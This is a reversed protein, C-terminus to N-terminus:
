KKSKSQGAEKVVKAVEGLLYTLSLIADDNGPIPFDIEPDANTDAIGVVPIGLKQAEKVVIADRVLDVVFVVDPLYRMNQVGGLALGLKDITKNLKVAEKKTYKSFEGTEKQDKLDALYKIRVKLTSFNTLLGPIWKGVVYPMSCEKAVGSLLNISQPKTSVFMIKKGESTKKALFKLANELYEATKELNIVHVGDKECYIFKKMKPNWKHKRHGIHVANDFMDKLMKKNM